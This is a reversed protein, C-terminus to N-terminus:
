VRCDHCGKPTTRAYKSKTRCYHWRKPNQEV